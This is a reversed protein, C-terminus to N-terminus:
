QVLCFVMLMVNFDIKLPVPLWHGSTDGHSAGPTPPVELLHSSRKVFEVPGPNSTLEASFLWGDQQGCLMNLTRLQFNTVM